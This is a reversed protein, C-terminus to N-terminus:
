DLLYQVMMNVLLEPSDLVVLLENYSPLFVLSPKENNSFGYGEVPIGMKKDLADNSNEDDILTLAYSGYFLKLPIKFQLSGNVISDKDVKYFNFPTKPYQNKYNYLFLYINGKKNRINSVNVILSGQSTKDFSQGVFELGYFFLLLFPFLKM